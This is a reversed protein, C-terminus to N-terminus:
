MKYWIAVVGAIALVIAYIWWYDKPAEEEEPTLEIDDFNPERTTSQITIKEEKDIPTDLQISAVYNNLIHEQEFKFSGDPQKSLTGIGPLVAGEAHGIDQKLQYTFEHFQKIADIEDIHLEKALFDYFVRDALATESKYLIKNEPANLVKLDNSFFAPETAISFNGIGPVSVKNHQLLYKHIIPYM